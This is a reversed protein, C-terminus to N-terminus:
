GNTEPEPQNEHEGRGILQHKGRDDPPNDQGNRPENERGVLQLEIRPEAPNDKGNRLENEKALMGTSGTLAAAGLALTAAVTLTAILRKM